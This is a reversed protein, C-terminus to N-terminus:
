LLSRLISLSVLCFSFGASKLGKSERAIYQIRWSEVEVSSIVVPTAAIGALSLNGCLLPFEKGPSICARAFCLPPVSHCPSSYTGLEELM